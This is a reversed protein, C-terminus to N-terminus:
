ENVPLQLGTIGLAAAQRKVSVNALSRLFKRQDKSVVPFDVLLESYLRNAEAVMQQPTVAKKANKDYLQVPYAFNIASHLRAQESQDLGQGQSMRGMLGSIHERAHPRVIRAVNPRGDQLFQGASDKSALARDTLATLTEYDQTLVAQKAAANVQDMNFGFSKELDQRNMKRDVLNSTLLSELAEMNARIATVQTPTKAQRLESGLGAIQRKISEDDMAPVDPLSNQDGTVPAPGSVTGPAGKNSVSTAKVRSPEAAPTPLTEAEVEGTPSPVGRGMQMLGRLRPGDGREGGMRDGLRERLRPFLGTGDERRQQRRERMMSILDRIPGAM